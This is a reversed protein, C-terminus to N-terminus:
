KKKKFLKFPLIFIGCVLWFMGVCILKIISGIFSFVDSHFQANKSARDRDYGMNRLHRYEERRGM